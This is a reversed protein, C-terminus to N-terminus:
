VGAPKGTLMFQAEDSSLAQYAQTDEEIDTLVAELSASILAIQERHDDLALGRLAAEATAKDLGVDVLLTVTKEPLYLLGNRFYTAYDRYSTMLFRM